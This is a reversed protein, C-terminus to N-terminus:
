DKRSYQELSGHLPFSYFIRKGLRILYTTNWRKGDQEILRWYLPIQPEPFSYEHENKAAVLFKLIGIERIKSEALHNRHKGRILCYGKVEIIERRDKYVVFFDPKYITSVGINLKYEEYQYYLIEGSLKLWQLESAFTKKLKSKYIKEEKELAKKYESIKM